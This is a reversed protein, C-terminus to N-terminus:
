EGFDCADKGCRENKQEVQPNRKNEIELRHAKSSAEALEKQLKSYAKDRENDSKGHATEFDNLRKNLKTIEENKVSNDKKRLAVESGILKDKEEVSKKLGSIHKTTSDKLEDLTSKVNSLEKQSAKVSEKLEVNAAQLKIKAAVELKKSQALANADKM